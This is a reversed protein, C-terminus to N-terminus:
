TKMEHQIRESRKSPTYNTFIHSSFNLKRDALQPIKSNSENVPFYLINYLNLTACLSPQAVSKLFNSTFAFSVIAIFSFESFGLLRQKTQAVLCSLLTIISRYRWEVYGIEVRNMGNRSKEYSGFHLLSKECSFVVSYKVSPQKHFNPPPPPPAPLFQTLMVVVAVSLFSKTKCLWKTSRISNSFQLSIVLSTSKWQNM